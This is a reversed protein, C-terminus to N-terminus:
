AFFMMLYIIFPYIFYITIDPKADYRNGMFIGVTLSKFSVSICLQKQKIKKLDVMSGKLGTSYAMFRMMDVEQPVKCICFVTNLLSLLAVSSM